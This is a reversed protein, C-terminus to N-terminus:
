HVLPGIPWHILPGTSWHFLPVCCHFVWCEILMNHCSLGLITGLYDWSLGLITGLFDWTLELSLRIVDIANISNFHGLTVRTVGISDISQTFIQFLQQRIYLPGDDTCSSRVSSVIMLLSLCHMVDFWSSFTSLYQLDSFMPMMPFRLQNNLIM